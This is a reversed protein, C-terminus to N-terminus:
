FLPEDVIDTVNQVGSLRATMEDDRLFIKYWSIVYETICEGTEVCGKRTENSVVMHMSKGSQKGTMTM